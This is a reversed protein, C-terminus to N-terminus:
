PWALAQVGSSESGRSPGTRNREFGSCLRGSRTRARCPRISKSAAPRISETLPPIRVVKSVTGSAGIVLTTSLRPPPLFLRSSFLVLMQRPEWLAVVSYVAWFPLFYVAWTGSCGFQELFFLLFFRGDSSRSIAQYAIPLRPLPAPSNATAVITIAEAESARAVVIWLPPRRM